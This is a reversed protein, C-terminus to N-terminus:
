CHCSNRCYIMSAISIHLIAFLANIFHTYDIRSCRGETNLNAIRRVTCTNKHLTHPNHLHLIFLPPGNHRRVYKHHMGFHNTAAKWQGDCIFVFPTQQEQM